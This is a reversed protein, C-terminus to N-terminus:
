TETGKFGLYTGSSIGMLALLTGNFEPMALRLYVSNIFIIGLVITWVVLQFRHFSLGSNDNLLDRVFGQSAPPEEQSRLQDLMSNVVTLRVQKTDLESLLESTNPPINQADGALSSKIESIRGTLMAQEARYQTFQNGATSTKSSEVLDAGLATGAGIGILVLVSPTVADYEGTILWILLFSTVVLVFWFAMQTHGLSYPYLKRDARRASSIRLMSTRGGLYVTSLLVAAVLVFCAWFWSEQVVILEFTQTGELPYGNELGVSVRVEKVFGQPSGLLEEWVEDPGEERSLHFQLLGEDLLIVEPGDDKTLPRGNLFLLIKQKQCDAGSGTCNAQNVLTALNEVKLTLTDGLGARKTLIAVVRPTIQPGSSNSNVEQAAAKFQGGYMSCIFLILTLLYSKTLRQVVLSIDM